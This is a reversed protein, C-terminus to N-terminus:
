GTIRGSSTLLGVQGSNFGIESEVARRAAWKRKHGFRNSVIMKGCSDNSSSKRTQVLMRTYLNREAVMAVLTMASRLSFIEVNGSIFSGNSSAPMLNMASFM